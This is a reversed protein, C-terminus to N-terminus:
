HESFRMRKNDLFAIIDAKMKGTRDLFRKEKDTSEILKGFALMLCLSDDQSEIKEMRYREKIYAAMSNYEERYHELIYGLVPNRSIIRQYKRVTIGTEGVCENAYIIKNEFEYQRTIDTGPFPIIEPNISVLAGKKIYDLIGELTVMVDEIESDPTTLIMELYPTIGAELTAALADHIQHLRLGKKIESLVRESFSEVGYALIAFNAQKLLKLVDRNVNDVRGQAIFRLDAPLGGNKREEQLQEVTEEFEQFNLEATLVYNDDHIFITKLQPYTIYIKKLLTIFKEGSFGFVKIKAEGHSAKLISKAACFSCNYPCYNMLFVRVTYVDKAKEEDNKKMWNPDKVLEKLSRNWYTEYHIDAFNLGMTLMEFEDRTLPPRLPTRVMKGGDAIVIGKVQFYTRELSRTTGDYSKVIDLMPFEGVGLVFLDILNFTFLYEYNLTTEFGGAVILPRSTMSGAIRILNLDNELSPHTISFGVIEYKRETLRNELEAEVDSFLNTDLVDVDYGHNNLFSKIRYLGTPPPLFQRPSKRKICASVLLVRPSKDSM